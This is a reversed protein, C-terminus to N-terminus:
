FRPLTNSLSNVLFTELWLLWSVQVLVLTISWILSHGVLVCSEYTWPVLRLIIWLILLCGWLLFLWCCRFLWFNFLWILNSRLRCCGLFGSLLLLLSSTLLEFLHLAHSSTSLFLVDSRVNVRFAVAICIFILGDLVTAASILAATNESVVISGYFYM